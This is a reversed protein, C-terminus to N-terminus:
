MLIWVPLSDPTHLRAPAVVAPPVGWIRSILLFRLLIITIKKERNGIDDKCIKSLICGVSWIKLFLLQVLCILQYVLKLFQDSM